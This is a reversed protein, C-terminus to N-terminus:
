DSCGPQDNKSNNKELVAYLQDVEFPKPLFDNMGAAQARDRDEQFTNATMAIIFVSQADSRPLERLRRAATLGDMVPMNIDMLILDYYGEEHGTFLDLAVQGNEARDVQIKRRELLEIAIEANIDNDEVLLIRLGELKAQQAASHKPKNLETEESLPLEITFYFNSGKGVESRVELEGGMLQVLSRSIALGLGTGPTHQDRNGGQEFSLFIKKLDTEDIGIGTDQVSFFLAARGEQGASERVSLTIAGQKTFKCANSLLNTLVQSIRMADGSFCVHKLQIDFTLSNGHIQAQMEFIDQMHDLLAGLEFPQSLIQMKENEIKSMDLTDNLLTLLFQSSTEIKKLNEKLAPTAEQSMLALHTLGIIANMPTRIEHSMRSLFDSKAQSTEMAKELQLRMMRTKLQIRYYILVCLAILAILGACFLVAMMPNSYILSELTAASQRVKLLNESILTESETASFNHISKSFISYLLVNPPLPLAFAIEEQVNNMTILNLNAYYRRSYLDEVFSAPLRVYDAKGHNVADLCKEYSDYYLIEDDAQLPMGTLGFPVAMRMPQSAGTQKNMLVVQDLKAYAPTRTWGTQDAAQDNDLYAGILDAEGAKVKEALEAYTQAYVYEFQLSTRQRILELCAPVIGRNEGNEEYFLPYNNKLVAVRLTPSQSLYAKEESTFDIANAYDATFYKEYLKDAFNPDASYIANMAENLQECLDPRSLTTVMYYSDAEFRAAVNYNEKLYVDSGLLLDAEKTELCQTYTKADEFYVLECQLNNFNLFKQLREIKSTAKRLVGIRKGNLTTYDFSKISTDSQPYILLNYNSGMVYEPYNFMKEYGDYYYMGGMIDNEGAIFSSLLTDPDGTIFEYQWGTYKAIEHLWDYVLGGYTGDEYVENLGPSIPFSVKLVEGEPNEGAQSGEAAEAQISLPTWSLGSLTLALIGLVFLKRWNRM